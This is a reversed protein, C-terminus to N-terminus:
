VTFQGVIAPAAHYLGGVVTTALAAYVGAMLDDALVGWGGPLRELRGCPWPKLIDFVRFSVFPVAFVLAAAITSQSLLEPHERARMALLPAPWFLLALAQGATEDAVIEPADANAKADAPQDPRRFRAAGYGGLAVCAVSALVVVALMVANYIAPPTNGLALALALAVPPLSGWTGPAPRLFGLGGVTLAAERWGFPLWAARSANKHPSM